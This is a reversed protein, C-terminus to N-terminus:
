LILQGTKLLGAAQDCFPLANCYKCARATSPIEKVIGKGKQACMAHAGAADTGFNKTAREAAPNSFYKYEPPDKWLDEDSCLPLNNQPSDKLETLIKLKAKIFAETAAYSHLEFHQSMIRHPPYKPDTTKYEVWDTFYYNITFTNNTIKDPNLWRYISGQLKYKKVMKQHTYTFTGTKKYDHLDGALILDFKGGIKYGDIEKITRQEMYVPTVLGNDKQLKKLHTDSPNVIISNAVEKSIGVLECAKHVAFKSKWADEIANHMASGDQSQALTSIEIEVNTTGKNQQTLILERIPKLLKTASLYNEENIHDYNDNLLWIAMPLNIGTTNTYKTTM